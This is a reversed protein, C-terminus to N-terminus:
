MHKNSKTEMGLLVLQQFYFSFLYLDQSM